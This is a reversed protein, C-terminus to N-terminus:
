IREMSEVSIDFPAKNVFLVKMKFNLKMSQNSGQIYIEKEERYVGCVDAKCDSSQVAYITCMSDFPTNFSIHLLDTHIDEQLLELARVKCEYVSSRVASIDRMYKISSFLSTNNETLSYLISWISFSILIVLILSIFGKNQM